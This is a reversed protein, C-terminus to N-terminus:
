GQQENASRMKKWMAIQRLVNKGPVYYPSKPHVGGEVVYREAAEMFDEYFRKRSGSKYTVLNSNFLLIGFKCSKLPLIQRFEEIMDDWDRGKLVTRELRLDILRPLNVFLLRELVKSEIAFGILHLTTLNPRVWMNVNIIASLEYPPHEKPDWLAIPVTLSFVELCDKQRIESGTTATDLERMGQELLLLDTGTHKRDIAGFTLELDLVKLGKAIKIFYKTAHLHEPKFAFAPIGGSYPFDSTARFEKPKKNAARLVELVQVFEWYGVSVGTKVLQTKSGMPGGLNARPSTAGPSSPPIGTPCWARASPSGILRTGNPSILESDVLRNVNSDSKDL